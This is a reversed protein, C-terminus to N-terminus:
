YHICVNQNTEIYILKNREVGLPLTIVRFVKFTGRNVLPLIIVYGLIGKKVHVYIDCIKLMVNSSDKSLTFPAM